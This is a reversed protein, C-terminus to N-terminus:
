SSEAVKCSGGSLPAKNWPMVELIRAMGCAMLLTLVFLLPSVWLGLVTFLAMMSGVGLLVQRDMPISKRGFIVSLGNKKWSEIGGDLVAVKVGGAALAVAAKQARSGSRCVM